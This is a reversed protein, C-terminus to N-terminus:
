PPGYARLQELVRTKESAVVSPDSRDLSKKLDAGAHLYHIEIIDSKAAKKAISFGVCNM